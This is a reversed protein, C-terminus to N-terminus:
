VKFSALDDDHDTVAVESEPPAPAQTKLQGILARWDASPNQQLVNLLGIFDKVTDRPTQFYAAGMRQQCSQLYVEIGDNSLLYKSEDGGAHVRRLNLLLVYCDEPTLNALNLVPGSFDVIGEGAFRNAALRTALAEYSFLGRRKDTICEDTAAFLFGVGEVNGQLCDNVIHLIAEYNNERATRNNLRHSLVVLEDLCVILGAYGAIRVFAAFLKLYEYLSSDDIISRVGLNERAETKTSYEARLWRLASAKLADNSQTHGQYYRSLVTAFDYGSVLEQLPMCLSTLKKEVDAENGGAGTVSHAVDGVWREVLSGLAGGDPKGRTALNQMLASYLARAQGNSAHLRRETTIDARLVVFKRELAVTQMLNLFFSKGAGFRGAIFRVAAAGSEIRMLDELVAAVERKRGVQIHQLGIRPVVGAALSNLIATRERELIRTAM